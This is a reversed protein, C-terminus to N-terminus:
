SSYAGEKADREERNILLFDIYNQSYPRGGVSGSPGTLSLSLRDAAADATGIKSDNGKLNDLLAISLDVSNGGVVLGSSKAGLSSAVDSLDESKSLGVVHSLVNNPSLDLLTVLSEVLRRLDLSEDGLLSESSLSKELSSLNVPELLRLLESGLVVLDKGLVDLLSLCSV